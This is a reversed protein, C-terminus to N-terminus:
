PFTGYKNKVNKKDTKNDSSIGIGIHVSIVDIPWYRASIIPCSSCNRLQGSSAEQGMSDLTVASIFTNLIFSKFKNM